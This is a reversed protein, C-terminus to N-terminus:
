EKPNKNMNDSLSDFFNYEIVKKVMKKLAKVCLLSNKSCYM